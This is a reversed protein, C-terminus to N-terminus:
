IHGAAVTADGGCKDYVAHASSEMYPLFKGFVDAGDLLLHFRDYIHHVMYKIIHSLDPYHWGLWISMRYLTNPYAFRVLLLVMADAAAFRTLHGRQGVRIVAPILLVDVLREIDSRKFRTFAWFNQSEDGDGWDTWFDVRVTPMVLHRFPTALRVLTLLSSCLTMMAETEDRKRKRNHRRDEEDCEMVMFFGASAVFM